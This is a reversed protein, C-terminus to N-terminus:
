RDVLYGNDLLFDYADNVNTGQWAPEDIGEPVLLIVEQQFLNLRIGSLEKGMVTLKDELTILPQIM